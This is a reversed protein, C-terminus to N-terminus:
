LQKPVYIIVRSMSEKFQLLSELTSHVSYLDFNNPVINQEYTAFKIRIENSIKMILSYLFIYNLILKLQAWEMKTAGSPIKNEFVLWIAHSMCKVNM